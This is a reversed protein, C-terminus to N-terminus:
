FNFLTVRNVNSEDIRAPLAKLTLKLDIQDGKRVSFGSLVFRSLFTEVMKTEEEPASEARENVADDAEPCVNRYKLVKTAFVKRLDSKFSEKQRIQEDTECFDYLVLNVNAM